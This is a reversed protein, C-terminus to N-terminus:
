PGLTQALDPSASLLKRTYAHNPAAFVRATEGQEVVAGNQMVLVRDSIVRAVALDHTIFLYSLGRRERLEALLDLVRARTSVDLASVAEDLVVLKPALILARAIAIRQRQGGSFEHPYRRLADDGLGVDALAEAVRRAREATTGRAPELHLPEAVIQEVRWRPDFSGVPDQFVIQARRRFQRANSAAVGELTVSGGALRELGLVARALSSKGSGSEGVVALSEGEALDFSVGKVAEFAKGGPLTYKVRVDQVKLLSAGIARTRMPTQLRAAALLDKAYPHKLSRLMAPSEGAEVIEGDKMILIRHAVQAVLALDHSVLLLGAGNEVFSRLLVIIDAQTTADLATTPEDAFILNPSLVTAIAIGARQRQGGSLQHPYRRAFSADLGTRELAGRADARAQANSASKHLLVTEAVQHELTRVPDLATAPEQFVMGIEAGRVRNLAAESAGILSQGNLRVQGSVRAGRPALGLAALLTLSKGSGSEGVLAVIEGAAVRLSVGRLVQKDGFALSLEEIELLASM